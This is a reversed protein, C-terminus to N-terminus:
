VIITHNYTHTHTLSPQLFALIHISFMIFFMNEVINDDCSAVRCFRINKFCSDFVVTVDNVNRGLVCEVCVCVINHSGQAAFVFLL